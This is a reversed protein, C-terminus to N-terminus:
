LKPVPPSHVALLFEQGVTKGSTPLVQGYFANSTEATPIQPGGCTSANQAALTGSSVSYTLFGAATSFRCSHTGTPPGALNVQFGYVTIL